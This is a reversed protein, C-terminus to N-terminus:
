SHKNIYTKLAKVLLLYLYVIAIVVIISLLQRMIVELSPPQYSTETVVGIHRM